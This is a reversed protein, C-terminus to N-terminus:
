GNGVGIIHLGSGPRRVKSREMKLGEMLWRYRQPTLRRVEKENQPRQYAGTGAAYLKYLLICGDRDRCFERICDLRRGCLLFLTNTFPDPKFRQQVM